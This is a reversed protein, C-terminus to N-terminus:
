TWELHCGNSSLSDVLHKSPYNSKGRPRSEKLISLLV